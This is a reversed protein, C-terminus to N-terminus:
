IVMTDKFDKLSRRSMELKMEFSGKRLICTKSHVEVESLYRLNVIVERKIQFFDLRPLIKFLETLSYNAPLTFIDEESLVVSVKGNAPNKQILVIDRINVSKFGTATPFFLQKYKSVYDLLHDIKHQQNIRRIMEIAREVANNLEADDIPKQLYDIAGTRLAKLTFEPYNTTFIVFPTHRVQNRVMKIIDFGSKVPMEANMFILDPIKDQIIRLAECSNHAEAMVNLIPFVNLKKKLGDVIKPDQDVIVTRITHSM